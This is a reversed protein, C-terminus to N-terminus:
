SEQMHELEPLETSSYSHVPRVKDRGDSTFLSLEFM